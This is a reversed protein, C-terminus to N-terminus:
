KKDGAKEPVLELNIVLKVEDGVLMGGAELAKNWTLGFDKRSFTAEASFMSRLNGWPDKMKEVSSVTFKLPKTVGHLTLDGQMEYLGESKKSISTSVFSAEPFKAVDFFDPSRLHQDRKEIGTNISTVKVKFTVKSKELSHDDLSVSESFDSFTGRVTAIKMHKIDFAISSHAKDVSYDAASAFQATALFLGIALTKRNLVQHNLM